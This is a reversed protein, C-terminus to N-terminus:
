RATETQEEAMSALMEWTIEDLSSLVATPGAAIAGNTTPGSAADRKTVGDDSIFSTRVLVCPIGAAAASAAGCPGSELAVVRPRGPRGRRALRELAMQYPRPSPKPAVADDSAVLVMATELGALELLQTAASRSARTVVGLRTLVALEALKERAGPVLSVGSSLQTSYEREARLAIISAAILDIAGASRLSLSDALQDFPADDAAAFTADLAAEGPDGLGAEHVALQFARRRVPATEVLIGEIEFLVCDLRM